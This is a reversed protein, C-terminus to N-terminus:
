LKHSQFSKQNLYPIANQSVGNKLSNLCSIKLFDDGTEKLKNVCVIGSPFFVNMLFLPGRSANKTKIITKLETSKSM